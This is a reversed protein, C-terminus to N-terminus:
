EPPNMLLPHRGTLMDVFMSKGGGNPGVVAIHEGDCLQFDVPEALRWEPMRPVGKEIKIITQSM